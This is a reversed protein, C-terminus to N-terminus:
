AIHHILVYVGQEALPATLEAIRESSEYGLGEIILALHDDDSIVVEKISEPEMKLKASLFTREAIARPCIISYEYPNLTIQVFSHPYPEPLTPKSQGGPNLLKLM